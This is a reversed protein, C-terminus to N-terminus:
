CKEFCQRKFFENSIHLCFSCDGTVIALNNWCINQESENLCDVIQDSVIIEIRDYVLPTVNLLIDIIDCEDCKEGLAKQIDECLYIAQYYYYEATPKADWNGWPGDVGFVLGCNKKGSFTTINNKYYYGRIDCVSQNSVFPIQWSINFYLPQIPAGLKFFTNEMDISCTYGDKVAVNALISEFQSTQAIAEDSLPGPYLSKVEKVYVTVVSTVSHSENSATLVFTATEEPSITISGSSSVNGIGEDIFVFNAGFVSWSLNTEYGKIIWLSDVIFFDIFLQQDDDNVSHDIVDTICGSFIFIFCLISVLLNKNIM